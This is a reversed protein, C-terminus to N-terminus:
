PWVDHLPGEVEVWQVALGAGEYKDAGIKDVTQAAALGFPLIRITSRAELHDVFEIVTPKDPAADFYGVHHNKTGMLMPGADVGYAVPKGGSQYASASIRIRYRGRDPPYFQGVTISQWESSSFMVLADELPRFVRETTVKVHRESDLWLQKKVLP